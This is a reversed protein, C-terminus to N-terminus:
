IESIYKQQMFRSIPVLSSTATCVFRSDAADDGDPLSGYSVLRVAVVIQMPRSLKAWGHQMVGAVSAASRAPKRGLQLALEGVRGLRQSCRKYGSAPGYRPAPFVAQM